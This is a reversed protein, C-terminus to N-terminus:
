QKVAKADHGGQHLVLYNIVGREDPFFEVEADVVKLFFKTESEPFIPFEPQGSAQTMLQDGALRFSISFTPALKYTGV